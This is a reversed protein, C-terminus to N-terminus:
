LSKKKHEDIIRALDKYLAQKMEDSNMQMRAFSLGKRSFEIVINPNEKIALVVEEIERKSTAVLAADNSKLYDISAIDAPGIALIARGVCLYDMIKTSISYRVLLKNALDFSEAHVLIDANNQLEKVKNQSVPGHLESFGEVVLSKKMTPTIPTPTYIDLYGFSKQQLANALLSLSKWRNAGINGTFLFRIPKHIETYQSQQRSFDPIKYLVKCPLKLYKAYDKRMKESILYLSASNHAAKRIWHRVYFRNLWFFPDISVQKLSYIDLAAEGTMPLNYKKQLYLAVRFVYVAYYYPLFLIDPHFEEVFQSMGDYDIRGFRWLFERGLFLIPLRTRKGVSLMTDYSENKDAIEYREFNDIRVVNGVKDKTFPHRLNSVLQKESVQFYAKVNPEYEPMGDALYINAIEIDKMDRFISSYTNGFSNDLRWPSRSIILIRM